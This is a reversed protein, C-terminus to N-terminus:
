EAAQAARAVSTCVALVLGVGAERPGTQVPADASGGVGAEATGTGLAESASLALHAPDIPAPPPSSPPPLLLRSLPHKTPPAHQTDQPLLRGPYQPPNQAPTTTVPRAPVRPFFRCHSKQPDRLASETPKRQLRQYVPAATRGTLIPTATGPCSGREVAKTRWPPAAAETVDLAQGASLSCGLHTLLLAHMAPTHLEPPCM